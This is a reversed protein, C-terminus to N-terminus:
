VTKSDEDSILYRECRQMVAEWKYLTDIGHSFYIYAEGNTAVGNLLSHIQLLFCTKIISNFVSTLKQTHVHSNPIM